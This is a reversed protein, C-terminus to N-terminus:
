ILTIKRLLRFPHCKQLRSISSSTSRAQFLVIREMMLILFLYIKKIIRTSQSIHTVEGKLLYPTNIKIDKNVKATFELFTAYRGPIGMGVSTSFLMISLLNPFYFRLPLNISDFKGGGSIGAYLIELLGKISEETVMFNFGDKDNKSIEELRLDKASFSEQVMSHNSFAGKQSVFNDGETLPHYIATIAGKTIISKSEANELTFNFRAHNNEKDIGAVIASLIIKNSIFVPENFQASMEVISSIFNDQQFFNLLSIFGLPLMGHVVQQRYISRRAFGQQTHLPNSDSTLESFRSVMNETISFQIASSIETRLNDSITLHNKEVEHRMISYGRFNDKLVARAETLMERNFVFFYFLYAAAGTLAAGIIRDLHGLGALFTEQVIIVSAAMFLTGLFVHKLDKFYERMSLGIVKLSLYTTILFLIPFVFLWSYALGEFGYFSGGIYFAISLFIAFILHNLVAINPKGKAMVLPANITYIARLTSVICLVKLPM